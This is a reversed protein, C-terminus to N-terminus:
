TSESIEGLPGSRWVSIWIPSGGVIVDVHLIDRHHDFTSTHVYPDPRGDRSSPNPGNPNEPTASSRTM